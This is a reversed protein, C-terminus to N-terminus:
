RGVADTRRYTRAEDIMALTNEIPTEPMITHDGGCIYGGGEGLVQIRERVEARVQEPTGFPLTHQTSIAGFFTLHRGFDRKLSEPENGPLHAQVTEWVDVGIDIMDPLVPRFTGCAHFWVKLGHGKILEALRQYTPKLFRRWTEPSILMGTQGAFDDGIYFIDVLGETAAIVRRSYELVFREINRIVAEIINPEAHLAILTEEMGIMNFVTCLIPMWQGGGRSAAELTMGERAVGCVARATRAKDEPVSRLVQAAIEYNFDDPNPWAYNDVDSVSSADALPVHSRGSGYGAGQSGMIDCDCGWIDLGRATNEGTYVALATQMDLGLKMRLEFNDRAGFRELWRAPEDFGVISVPVTEPEIHDIAKLMRDRSSEM